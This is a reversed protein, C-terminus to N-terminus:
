KMTAPMFVFLLEIELEYAACEFYRRYDVAM